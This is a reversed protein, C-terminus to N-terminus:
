FQASLTIGVRRPEGLQEYLHETYGDRPDNGFYFGQVGYESDLLNRTWLSVSVIDMQYRATMSLLSVSRAEIDESDSYYYGAKRNFQISLTLPDLLQVDTGVGYQWQPAQAQARGSKDVGEKTVFGSMSSELWAANWLVRVTDTVQYSNDTEVGYNKGSSANDIYGVFKTDENIWAKLQMQERWMSFVAIRSLLKQDQSAGKVGFEANLLYEPSFESKEALFARAAASLQTNGTEAVAEGNVGGVKYGRSLLGYLQTNVSVQYALSLKGGWMWYDTDKSFAGSDYSAEYRETRVGYTFTVDNAIVQQKEGYVAMNSRSFASQFDSDLYTYKRTLDISQDSIYIGAAWPSAANPKSVFRQDLSWLTRDRLYLDVSSYEDAHIGQYAWDEDYGYATEANVMSLQTVSDASSLGRYSAKVAGTWVDQADRGPQDSLTTRNRDLSFADYGNDVDHRNAIVDVTLDSNVEIRSKLHVSLEDINNTDDRGLFQNKIFGDSKQVDAALRVAWSDSLAANAVAIAQYSDYNAKSLQLSGESSMLAENSTLNLMGALANSGFRTAEPGRFVELQQNDALSILGLGSYDIGDVLVGVSPNISDVFESREGIGRMQLFRGRSAGATFNLNPISNLLDDLHQAAQRNQEEVSLVEVSGPLKQVNSRYFDGRVQIVEISAATTDAFAVQCSLALLSIPFVALRRM